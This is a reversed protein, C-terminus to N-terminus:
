GRGHPLEFDLLPGDPVIGFPNIHRHSQYYHNKIHAMNVTEAVGSTQYIDRTYGWLNPYDIIRKLNCKFHGVYVADFRVLTTFLRVDAETLAAGTLYRSDCLIGEVRDLASFLEKFARSYARQKKAFGCRYVGNNICPYIWDNLEDIRARKAQPYLDLTPNLACDQFESNFMRIIEASENNVIQRTEKDWLVPVTVAGDFQPNSAFYAERLDRFGNVRDGTSGPTSDAFSWGTQPLLPDVVDYSIAQELGKLKRTILTRHAWPCAYSVYLHYRNQAAAFETSGDQRVQARFSTQHRIFEGGEEIESEWTNGYSDKPATKQM